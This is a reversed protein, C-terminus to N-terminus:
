IFLKFCTKGNGVINGVGCQKKWSVKEFNKLNKFRRDCGGSKDYIPIYPVM